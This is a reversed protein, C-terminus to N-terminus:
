IKNYKRMMKVLRDPDNQILEGYLIIASKILYKIRKCKCENPTSIFGSYEYSDHMCPGGCVYRAWCSVCTENNDVNNNQYIKIQENDLGSYINGMLSDNCSYFRHCPYILGDTDIAIMEMGAGCRYCKTKRKIFSKIFSSFSLYNFGDPYKYKLINSLVKDDGEIIQDCEDSNLGAKDSVISLSLKDVIDASLFAEVIKEPYPYDNSLVSNIVFGKSMINRLKYAGKIAYEFSNDYSSIRYKNHILEPFDISVAVQFDKEKLYVSIEDTLLSGNTTLTYKCKIGIEGAKNIYYKIIEFNLLPEGGFFSIEVEKNRINRKIFLLIDDVKEKALFKDGCKDKDTQNYCYSCRYNCATTVQVVIKSVSPVCHTAETHTNNFYGKEKLTNVSEIIEVYNDFDCKIRELTTGRFDRLLIMIEKSIKLVNLGITEFCYISGNYEIIKCQYGCPILIEDDQIMRCLKFISGGM